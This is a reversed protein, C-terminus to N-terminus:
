SLLENFALVATTETFSFVYTLSPCQHKNVQRIYSDKSHYKSSSKKKKLIFVYTRIVPCM